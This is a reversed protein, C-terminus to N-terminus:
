FGQSALFHLCLKPAVLLERGSRHRLGCLQFLLCRSGGGVRLHLRKEM